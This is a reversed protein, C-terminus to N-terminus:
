CPPRCKDPLPERVRGFCTRAVLRYRVVGLATFAPAVMSDSGQFDSLLSKLEGALEEAEPGTKFMKWNGAILPTRKPM